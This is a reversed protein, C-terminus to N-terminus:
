YLVSRLIASATLLACFFSPSKLAWQSYVTGCQCSSKETTQLKRNLTIEIATAPAIAEDAKFNATASLNQEATQASSKKQWVSITILLLILALSLKKTAKKMAKEGVVDM